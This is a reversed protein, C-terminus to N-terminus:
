NNEQPSAKTPQKKDSFPIGLETLLAKAEENTNATTVITIDFGVNRKIKDLDVEPFISQDQVGLTYNGHGDFAKPSIGRFDRIRPLAMKILRELFEYMRDGRLTVKAGIAQGKRLKFNSISKKSKTEAPKQGTIVALEKKADELAQKLDAGQAPICTNVVVKHVKPVQFVNKYGLNKSLTPVVKAQYEKYLEAQM